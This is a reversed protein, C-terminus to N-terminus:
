FELAKWRGEVGGVLAEFREDGRLPELFPDFQALLPFNLFGREVAAALLSLATEREGVAAFCGAGIWAYQLDRRIAAQVEDDLAAVVGDRDGALAAALGAALPGFVGAAATGPLPALLEAAADRRGAAALAWAYVFRIAPNEPEMAHAKSLAGLARVPDGNMMWLQGPLAQYLPTLPDIRQLKDIVPVAAAARGVFAYVALLGALSDSDNPDKALALKLHRISQQLDGDVISLLGRLRHGHASDPELALIRDACGHARDLLGDGSALSSNLAQWYAYGRASLLLVNEGVIREAEDLYRLARDLAESSYLFIERKARLYCEFARADGIPRQSLRREEGPTLRIKLASVIRRSLEEQIELVDDLRGTFKEAWLNVDRGADILKATLRLSDGRIRVVGELVYQVALERGITRIDKSTGKLQMASTRSIVRLADIASLDTIVEDTLGDSFHGLESDPPVSSFPLVLISRVPSPKGPSPFALTPPSSFSPPPGELDALLERATQYRQEPRKQLAGRLVEDLTSPLDDRQEALPPPEHHVVSYLVAVPNDGTFPCRGSLMEYLVVGAAWVDARHDAAHGQAQEPAMYAATGHVMGPQTLDLAGALKALGFDLIKLEGFRTVMLNGPKVDRHVIGAEHARALGNLLQRALDIAEDPPLAGRAKIREGVTQGEYFAMVLVLEGDATEEVDYITCINPHDIASAARAEHLFRQKAREEGVLRRSLFKLAVPRELRTDLAKYVVGMGGGGIRGLIRYQSLEGPVGGALPRHLEESGSLSM